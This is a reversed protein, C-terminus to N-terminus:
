KSLVLRRLHPSLYDVFEILRGYKDNKALESAIGAAYAAGQSHGVIKITEGDTLSIDGAELKKILDQGAKAGESFRTNAESEPTFSGNTYYANKDNYANMYADNVGEWYTFAKGNNHPGDRYFGRDPVYPAYLPNPREGVSRYIQTPREQGALYQKAMFGSAFIFLNGDVDIANVPTNGAYNYPTLGYYVESYNDMVHWRGIQNDYMRAGYDLWELGSGDSFEQRQEEKSNYKIKNTVSGAAKSSIGQQVLGFPYYHTEELIASRTHVVQLNDFFVNVPSENSCYIYVYGNKPVPISGFDHNKFGPNDAVRNFGGGAYKFQEDFFIYNIYAKPKTTGL